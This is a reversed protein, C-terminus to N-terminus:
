IMHRLFFLLLDNELFLPENIGFLAVDFLLEVELLLESASAVTSNVLSTALDGTLENSDFSNLFLLDLIIFVEEVFNGDELFKYAERKMGLVM